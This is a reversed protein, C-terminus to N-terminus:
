IDSCPCGRVKDIMKESWNRTARMISQLQSTVPTHLLQFQGLSRWQCQPFAYLSQSMDARNTGLFGRELRVYIFGHTTRFVACIPDLKSYNGVWQDAHIINRNNRLGDDCLAGVINYTWQNEDQVLSM